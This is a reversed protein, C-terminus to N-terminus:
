KKRYKTFYQIQEKDSLSEFEIKCDECTFKVHTPTATTGMSWFFWGILTYKFDIKVNESEVTNGCTCSKFQSIDLYNSM